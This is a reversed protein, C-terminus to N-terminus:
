TDNIRRQRVGNRPNARQERPARSLGNSGEGCLGTCSCSRDATLALQSHMCASPREKTYKEQGHSYFPVLRHDPLCNLKKSWLCNCSCAVLRLSLVTTFNRQSEAKM